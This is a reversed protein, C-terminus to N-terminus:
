RDTKRIAATQADAGAPEGGMGLPRAPARLESAEAKFHERLVREIDMDRMDGRDMDM